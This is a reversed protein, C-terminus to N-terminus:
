DLTTQILFCKVLVEPHIHFLLAEKDFAWIKVVEHSSDTVTTM